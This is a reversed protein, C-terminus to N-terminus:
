ISLIKKAQKDKGISNLYKAYDERLDNDFAALRYSQSYFKSAEAENNLANALKACLWKYKYNREEIISAEKAWEFATTLDGLDQHFESMKEYLAANNADLSISKKLSEIAFKKDGKEYLAVANYYYGQPCNSDLEIISQAADFVNEYDNLELNIKALCVLAYIYNENVELIRDITKLAVEFNKQEMDLDLLESLYELSNPNLAIAKKISEKAADFLSLEKYVGSIAAYAFDDETGYKIINELTEKASLLDGNKSKILAYLVNSLQHNQDLTKIFDLEFLAKEYAKKQYYLYALSFHYDINDPDMCIAQNFYKLAEDLWGNLFYGSALNYLYEPNQEDLKQATTFYSIAKIFNQENLNFLGMYNMVEATQLTKELESFIKKSIEFENTEYYIKGLLLMVDKNNSSIETATKLLEIAKNADFNKYYACALEYLVEDNFEQNSNTIEDIASFDNMKNLLNIKAALNKSTPQINYIREGIEHANKLDGQNLYIDELLTMVDLHIPNIELVKEIYYIAREFNGLSQYLYALQALIELNDPDISLAKYLMEIAPKYFGQSKLEFSKKVYDLIENNTM